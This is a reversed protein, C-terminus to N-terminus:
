CRRVLVCKNELGFISLALTTRCTFPLEHSHLRYFDLSSIYQEEQLDNDWYHTLTNWHLRWYGLRKLRRSVHIIHDHTSTAFSRPLLKGNERRAFVTSRRALLLSSSQLRRFLCHKLFDLPSSEASLPSTIRIRINIGVEPRSRV